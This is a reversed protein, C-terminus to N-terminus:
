HRRWMKEPREYCTGLTKWIKDLDELHVIMKVEDGSVCKERLTKAALNNSVMATYAQQFAQWEKKCRPYNVFSRDFTLWGNGNARIQGWGRLLGPLGTYSGRM